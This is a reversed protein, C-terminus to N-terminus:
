PAAARSPAVSLLSMRSLTDIARGTLGVEALRHGAKFKPRPM